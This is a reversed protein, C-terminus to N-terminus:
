GRNLVRNGQCKVLWRQSEHPHYVLILNKAINPAKLVKPDFLLSWVSKLANEANSDKSDKLDSTKLHILRNRTNRLWVYEQWQKNGKPSDVKLIDPLIESLKVDVTIYRDIQGKDYIETNRGDQRENRYIYDEPIASNVLAEIATFSFVVSGFLNEM